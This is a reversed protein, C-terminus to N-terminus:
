QQLRFVTASSIPGLWMIFKFCWEVSGMKSIFKSVPYIRKWIEILNEFKLVQNSIEFLNLHIKLLYFNQAHPAEMNWVFNWIPYFKKVNLNFKWIEFSLKLNWIFEFPNELFLLKPCWFFSSKCYCCFHLATRQIFFPEM